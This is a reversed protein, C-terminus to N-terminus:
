WIKKDYPHKRAFRGQWDDNDFVLLNDDVNTKILAYLDQTQAQDATKALYLLSM